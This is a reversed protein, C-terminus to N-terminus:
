NENTKSQIKITFGYFITNLKIYSDIFKYIIKIYLLLEVFRASPTIIMETQLEDITRWLHSDLIRVKIGEQECYLDGSTTRGCLTEREAGGEGSGLVGKNVTLLDRQSRPPDSSGQLKPLTIEPRQTICSGEAESTYAGHRPDNRPVEHFKMEMKYGKVSEPGHNIPGTDQAFSMPGQNISGTDNNM